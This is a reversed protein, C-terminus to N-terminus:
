GLEPDPLFGGRSEEARPAWYRYTAEGNAFFNVELREITTDELRGQEVIRRLGQIATPYRDRNHDNKGRVEGADQRTAV